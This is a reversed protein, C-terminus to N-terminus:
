SRKKESEALDMAKLEAHRKDSLHEYCFYKGNPHANDRMHPDLWATLNLALLKSCAPCAVCETKKEDLLIPQGTWCRAAPLQSDKAPPPQNIYEEAEHRTKFVIDQKTIVHRPGIWLLEKPVLPNNGKSILACMELKIEKIIKKNLDWRKNNLPGVRAFSVKYITQGPRLKKIQEFSLTM